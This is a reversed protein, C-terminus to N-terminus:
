AVNELDGRGLDDERETGQDASSNTHKSRNHEQLEQDSQFSQGCVDCKNKGLNETM